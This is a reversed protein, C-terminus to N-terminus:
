KGVTKQLFSIAAELIEDRSEAIGKATPEVKINPQIGVRQLQRGDIHRVAVGTFRVTLGGPLVLTTVDGDVGATPMGIFTVDAASELFLCSHEAQSVATEDILVVVKGKYVDGTREPITQRFSLQHPDDDLYIAIRRETWTRTTGIL